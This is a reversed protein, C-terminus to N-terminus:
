ELQRKAHLRRHRLQLVDILFTRRGAFEVAQIIRRRRVKAALTEHRPTKRFAAHTKDLDCVAIREHLPILMAIQDKSLNLASGIILPVAIAGAYMVLVHQLGLAALKPAPFMEEIADCKSDTNM